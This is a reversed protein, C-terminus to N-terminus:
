LASEASGILAECEMPVVPYHLAIQACDALDWTGARVLARLRSRVAEPLNIAPAWPVFECGTIADVEPCNFSTM